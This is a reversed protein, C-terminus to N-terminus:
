GMGRLDQACVCVKMPVYVWADNDYSLFVSQSKSNSVHSDDVYVQCTPFSVWELEPLLNNKM